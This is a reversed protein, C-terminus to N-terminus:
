SKKEILLIVGTVALMLVITEGFTDFARYGLYISTVLNFAGTDGTGHEYFYAKQSPSSEFNITVFLIVALLMLVIIVPLAQTLSKLLTKMRM